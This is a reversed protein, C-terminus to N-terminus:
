KKITVPIANSAIDHWQTSDNYIGTAVVAWDIDDTDDWSIEGDADNSPAKITFEDEFERTQGPALTVTTMAMGCLRMPSIRTDNLFADPGICTSSFEFSLDALRANRVTTRLKLKDGYTYAPQEDLITLTVLAGKKALVPMTASEPTNNTTSPNHRSVFVALIGYTILGSIVVVSLSIAVNKVNM